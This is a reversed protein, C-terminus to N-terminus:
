SKVFSVSSARSDAAKEALLVAAMPGSVLSSM